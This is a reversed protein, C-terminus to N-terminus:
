EGFEPHMGKQGRYTAETMLDLAGELQNTILMGAYMARGRVDNWKEQEAESMDELSPDVNYLM